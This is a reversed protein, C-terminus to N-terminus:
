ILDSQKQDDLAASSADEEQDKPKLPLKIVKTISRVYDGRATSVTVVRVLGDKGPHVKSIRALPWTAPPSLDDAVLVIDNVQLNPVVNQWKNLQRYQNLVEKRWRNWFANRMNTILQWRRYVNVLNPKAETPEPISLLPTGVLIHGRTLAPYDTASSSIACMPRSNLCAEIKVALTAM